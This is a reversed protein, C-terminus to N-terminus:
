VPQTVRSAAPGDLYEITLKQFLAFSELYLSARTRLYASKLADMAVLNALAPLVQPNALPMSWPACNRIKLGDTTALLMSVIREMLFVKMQVARGDYGILQRLQASIPSHANEAHAFCQQFISNWRQWFEGKAVFFNCFVTTSTDMVLQAPDVHLGITSFFKAALQLFGPHQAGGQEFINRFFSAQDPFPSFTIIDADDAGAVFSRVAAGTLHTKLGFKPSFFGYYVGDEFGHRKLYNQIPWYEFWDPRENSSNDLAEFAPDIAARTLEDYFIQVIRVDKNMPAHVSLRNGSIQFLGMQALANSRPATSQM